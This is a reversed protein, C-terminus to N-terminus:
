QSAPRMKHQGCKTSATQCIPSQPKMTADIRRANRPAHLRLTARTPSGHPLTAHAAGLGAREATRCSNWGLRHPHCRRTAPTASHNNQWHTDALGSNRGRVPGRSFHRRVNDYQQGAKPGTGHITRVIFLPM